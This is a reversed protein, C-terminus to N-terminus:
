VTHDDRLDARTLIDMINARNCRTMYPAIKETEIIFASKLQKVIIYFTQYRVKKPIYTLPSIYVHYLDITSLLLQVFKGKLRVWM